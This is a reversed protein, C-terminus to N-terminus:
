ISTGNLTQDADPRRFRSWSQTEGTTTESAELQSSGRSHGAADLLEMAQEKWNERVIREALSPATAEIASLDRENVDALRELDTIGFSALAVALKPGIGTVKSLLHSDTREVLMMLPSQQGVAEKLDAPGSHGEDLLKAVASKSASLENQSAELRLNLSTLRTKLDRMAEQTAKTTRHRRILFGLLLGIVLGILLSMPELNMNTVSGAQWM